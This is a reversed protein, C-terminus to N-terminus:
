AAEKTAIAAGAERYTNLVIARVAKTFEQGAFEDAKEATWDAARKEMTKLVDKISREQMTNWGDNLDFKIGAQREAEECIATLVPRFCASIADFDRKNRTIARGFSDRFLGIYADTMNSLASREAATPQIPDAKKDLLREANMYNVPVIYVDCESGAPNEGLKRLVDNATYWGGNRGAQYAESQSKLDTRLLGAVDFQAFFKGAKCGQTPCLKRTFEAELKSLYPRLSITLFQLMLQESNTGSLRSTDGVLHPSIKYLAAIDARQYSRTALFQSEEPSIGLQEYSWDAGFLFGIKGQNQGGQELQWSERMEQRAKLDPAKGKNIL